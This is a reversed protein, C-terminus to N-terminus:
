LSNPGVDLLDGFRHSKLYDQVMKRLCWVREVETWPVVKAVQVKVRVMLEEGSRVMGTVGVPRSEGLSARPTHIAGPNNSFVGEWGGNDWFSSCMGLEDATDLEGFKWWVDQDLPCWFVPRLRGSDDIIVRRVSDYKTPNYRDLHVVIEDETSETSGHIDMTSSANPSSRILSM